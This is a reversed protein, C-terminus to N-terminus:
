ASIGGDELLQTFRRSLVVHHGLTIDMGIEGLRETQSRELGEILWDKLEPTLGRAQVLLSGISARAGSSTTSRLADAAMGYAVDDTALRRRANSSWYATADRGDGDLRDPVELLNRTLVDADSLTAVVKLRVPDFMGQPDAEGSRVADFWARLVASDPWGDCLAAVPGNVIGDLLRAEVLKGVDPRGAHSRALLQAAGLSTELAAWSGDGSLLAVLPRATPLDPRPDQVLMSIATLTAKNARVMREAAAWVATHVLPRADSQQAFREVLETDNIQLWTEEALLREVENWHAAFVDLLPGDTEFNWASFGVKLENQARAGELAIDCRDVALLAAMAALRRNELDSGVAQLQDRLRALLDEDVDGRVRRAAAHLVTADAAIARDGDTEAEALAKLADSSQPAIRALAEVLDSRLPQPLPACRELMAARMPAEGGLLLAFVGLLGGPRRLWERALRHVRQDRPAAQAAAIVLYPSQEDLVAAAQAAAILAESLDQDIAGAATLVNMPGSLERGGAELAYLALERTRALALGRDLEIDPIREAIRLLRNPPWDLVSDLAARVERDDYWHDLLAAVAWFEIRNPQRLVNLLGERIALTPSIRAAHALLYPADLRESSIALADALAADGAHGRALPGWCEHLGFRGPGSNFERAFAMAVDHDGPFASAALRWVDSFLPGPKGLRDLVFSRLSPDNPWGAALLDIAVRSRDLSFGSLDEILADRQEETQTGSAIRAELGAAAVQWNPSEVAADVLAGVQEAGTWGLALCRVAAAAAEISPPRAATQLLIDLWAPDGGNRSALTNAAKARTAEEDADLSRLLVADVEPETWDQMMEFADAYRYHHLSPFWQRLRPVVLGATQESLLGTTALRMVESRDAEGHGLEVEDMFRTALRRTLGPSRRVSGFAIEALLLDRTGRRGPPAASAELAEVLHEVESPRQAAQLAFLLVDHWQPDHAKTAFASRQDELDLAALHEAALLEQFARHLFGVEGPSREVLIGIAEAGVSLLQGARERARDAPLDLERVLYDRLFATAAPVTLADPAQRVDPREQMGYALASLARRRTIPDLDGRPAPALAARLRSRPHSDLLRGVLEAYAERRSSPLTGGERAIAMLGGLLLPTGALPAVQPLAELESAFADARALSQAKTNATAGAEGLWDFWAAAFERKQQADFPALAHRSWSADLAGLVRSGHPRSTVIAPIKTTAAFTHLITLAAQAADEDAWEDVGDVLLTVRGDAFAAEVHKALRGAGLQELWAQAAGPVSTARGAPLQALQRTWFAFPLLVPLHAPWRRRLQDLRPEPSLMDLSIFRLLTSKGSGPEGLVVAREASKSWEALGVRRLGGSRLHRRRPRAAQSPRRRTWRWTEEFENQPAENARPERDAEARGPQALHPAVFRRALPLSVPPTDLGSTAKLVGPDIAAFLEEYLKKLGGRLDAMSARDLRASLAEAAARGCFRETWPRGFFDDVIDPHAKLEESLRGGDLTVLQLGRKQLRAAQREIEEAEATGDLSASTCLLFREARSAWSGALFTTVASRIGSPGFSVHRKCQWVDYGDRGTNRVYIDIGGQRQGRKGYLQWHEADGRHRALRLCLREFDLPTLEAFPLTQARTTAPPAPIEGDPPDLLWAPDSLRESADEVRRGRM